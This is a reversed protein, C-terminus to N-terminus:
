GTLDHDMLKFIRGLLILIFYTSWKRVLLERVWFKDRKTSKIERVRTPDRKM